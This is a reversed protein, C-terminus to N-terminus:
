KDARGRVEFQVSDVPKGDEDNLILNYTGNRPTWGSMNKFIETVGFNNEITWTIDPLRPESLFFVLQLEQPIDPDIAIITGSPPYIIRQNLQGARQIKENPETGHIFLENRDPEASSPLSIEKRIIMPAQPLRAIIDKCHLHNMIELWVPAAGTIGSVDQMPEGSFNGVWVGVTYRGSYGVCWNDRMDKSTGTKVAAAFRTSIPNELGFTASRAERDSLIDSILFASEASYIRKAQPSKAQPSLRLESWMGSCALCRYAGTLEWLTVDMSGLALSPGYYSGSESINRVGLDRLKALFAEIGTMAITRVAPINLSSALAVRATVPGKYDAEYNHPRYIGSFVPLDLPCDEILSAPTLIKKEFALGYLFPKLTSGAQRKAQVGDVYWGNSRDSTYSVYALVEGTRNDAVLVAGNMVNKRNLVSLQNKLSEAAFRQISADLSCRVIKGHSQKNILIRAVHPALLSAPKINVPGSLIKRAASNIDRAPVNWGLTKNLSSARLIIDSCRANPSRILSALILAEARNLGHPDKGFLGRSAARIGQLEGRFPIYNLYAELIERKSWKKEIDLAEMIQRYKQRLSRRGKAPQIDPNVASALQMTITSAGRMSEPTFGGFIAAGISLYDVGSHQFFRRDEASIVAALLAPSVDRFKTWELRRAKKDTRIGYLPDGRRDVLLTDSKVYSKRVEEFSSVAYASNGASLCIALLMIVEATKLAAERMKLKDM